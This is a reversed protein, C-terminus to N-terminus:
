RRVVFLGLGALLLLVISGPEPILEPTIVIGSIEKKKIFASANEEASTSLTNDFTLEVVTAALGSLDLTVSGEWIQAIGEDGPMSFQGGFEGGGSTFVMNATSDGVLDGAANFAKWFFAAGVWAQANTDPLGILTYDGAESIHLTDILYGPKARVTTSMQADVIQAGPGPNVESLFNVPDFLLSDGAVSPASYLLVDPAQNNDETVQEYTINDGMFDGYNMTGASATAVSLACLFLALFIGKLPDSNM